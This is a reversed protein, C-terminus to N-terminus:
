VRMSVSESESVLHGEVPSEGHAEERVGRAAGVRAAGVVKPEHPRVVQRLEDILELPRLM